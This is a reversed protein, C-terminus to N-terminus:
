AKADEKKDEKLAKEIEIKLASIQQKIGNLEMTEKDKPEPMREEKPTNEPINQPAQTVEPPAKPLLFSHLLTASGLASRVVNPHIHQPDTSM